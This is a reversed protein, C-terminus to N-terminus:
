FLAHVYKKTAGLESRGRKDVQGRYLLRDLPIIVRM